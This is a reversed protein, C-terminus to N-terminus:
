IFEAFRSENRKFVIYGVLFVAVSVAAASGIYLWLSELSQQTPNKDDAHVWRLWGTQPFAIRRAAETLAAVPNLLYLGRWERPVLSMPYINPVLFGGLSLAIGVLHRFDRFFLNLCATLLGMGITYVLLILAMLLLLPLHLWSLSVRYVLLLPILGLLGFGFDVVKSLVASIPFVERPFYVKTILSINGVLSETAATLGSAFLGWFLLGFYSYIPFPLNGVQAKMIYQGVITYIVAFSLPNLVAWIYGLASQKYRTKVDRAVLSLILERQARPLALTM